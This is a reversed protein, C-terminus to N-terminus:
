ARAVDTARSRRRLEHDASGALAIPFDQSQDGPEFTVAGQVVRMEASELGHHPCRELVERRSRRRTLEPEVLRLVQETLVAERELLEQEGGVAIKWQVFIGLGRPRLLM